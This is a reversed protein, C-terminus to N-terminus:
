KRVKRADELKGNAVLVKANVISYLPTERV